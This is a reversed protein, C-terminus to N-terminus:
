ITKQKQYFKLNRRNNSSVSNFLIFIFKIVSVNTNKILHVTWSNWPLKFVVVTFIMKIKSDYDLIFHLILNCKCKNVCAVWVGFHLLTTIRERLWVSNNEDWWEWWVNRMRLWKNKHVFVRASNRTSEEIRRPNQMNRTIQVTNITGWQAALILEVMEVDVNVFWLLFLFCM